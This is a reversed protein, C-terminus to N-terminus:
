NLNKPYNKDCCLCKFEILDDKVNTYELCYEFDNYKTGCTECTKHEHGCKCKIKYIGEALNNILNSLSSAM